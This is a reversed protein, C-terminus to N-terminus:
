KTEKVHHDNPLSLSAISQKNMIKLIQQLSVPKFNNGDMGVDMSKGERLAHVPKLHVHGFLHIHGRAMDRWSAMPYHNLVFNYNHGPLTEYAPIKVELNPHGDYVGAFLSQIGRTEFGFETLHQYERNNEIHHDHNGLILHITKVNLRERFELIKDIGGFSWDGLHYLIDDAKARANINNVVWDDHEEITDFPRCIDTNTWSSTGKIINKHSYHTDSTLYIKNM